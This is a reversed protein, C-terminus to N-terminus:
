QCGRPQRFHGVRHYDRRREHTVAVRKVRRGAVACRHEPTRSIYTERHTLHQPAGATATAPSAIGPAPLSPRDARHLAMIISIKALLEDFQTGLVAIQIFRDHCHFARARRVLQQDLAQLLLLKHQLILDLGELIPQQGVNDGSPKTASAQERGKDVADPVLLLGRKGTATHALRPNASGERQSPGSRLNVIAAPLAGLTPIM